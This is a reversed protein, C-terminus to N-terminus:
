VFRLLLFVVNNSRCTRVYRIAPLASQSSHVSCTCQDSLILASFVLALFCRLDCKAVLNRIPFLFRSVLIDIYKFGAGVTNGLAAIFRV